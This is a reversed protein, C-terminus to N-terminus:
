PNVTNELYACGALRDHHSRVTQCTNIPAGQPLLPRGNVDLRGNLELADEIVADCLWECGCHEVLKLGAARGIVGRILLGEKRGTERPAETSRQLPHSAM